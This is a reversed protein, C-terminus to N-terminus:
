SSLKRKKDKNNKMKNDKNSAVNLFKSVLVKLLGFLNIDNNGSRM